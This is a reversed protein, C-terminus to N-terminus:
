FAAPVACVVATSVTSEGSAIRVFGVFWVTHLPVVAVNVAAAFPFLVTCHCTEVSPVFKVLIVPAIEGVYLKVACDVSLLLFYRATEVLLHPVVFVVAAVGVVVGGTIVVFGVFWVAHAPVVAVNVAAAVPLVLTRHCTDVFPPELKELM